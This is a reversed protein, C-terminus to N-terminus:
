QSWRRRRREVNRPHNRGTGASGATSVAARIEDESKGDVRLQLALRVAPLNFALAVFDRDHNAITGDHQVEWVFWPSRLSDSEILFRRGDVQAYRTRYPNRLRDNWPARRSLRIM